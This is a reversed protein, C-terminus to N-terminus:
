NITFPTAFEKVFHGYIVSTIGEGPRGGPHQFGHVAGFGAIINEPFIGAHVSQFGHHCIKKAFRCGKVARGAGHAVLYANFYM